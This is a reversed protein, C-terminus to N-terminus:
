YSAEETIKYVRFDFQSSNNAQEETLKIVTEEISNIKKWVDEITPDPEKQIKTRKREKRISQKRYRFRSPSSPDNAKEQDKLKQKAAKRAKVNVKDRIDAIDRM